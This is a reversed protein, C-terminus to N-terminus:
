YKSNVTLYKYGVTIERIQGRLTSIKVQGVRLRLSANGAPGVFSRSKGLTTIFLDRLPLVPLIKRRGPPGGPHRTVVLLTANFFAAREQSAGMRHFTHFRAYMNKFTKRSANVHANGRRTQNVFTARSLLIDVKLPNGIV